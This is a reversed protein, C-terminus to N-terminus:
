FMDKIILASRGADTAELSLYGFVEDAKTHEDTGQINENIQIDYGEIYAYKLESPRYILGQNAYAGSEMAEHAVVRVTGRSTTYKDYVYGFESEKGDIRYHDTGWLSMRSKTLNSCLMIWDDGEPASDDLMDIVDTTFTKYTLAGGASYENQAWHYIGQMSGFSSTLASGGATVNNSSPRKGFVFTKEITRLAQYLKQKKYQAFIDNTFYHDNKMADWAIEVPERFEQVINYNNDHDKHIRSPSSSGSPYATALIMIEDNASASFTGGIATVVVDNTSISDVRAVANNSTNILTDYAKLDTADTVALTNTGATWTSATVTSGLPTFTFWEIRNRTAKRMGISPEGGMTGDNEKKRVLNLTHTKRNFLMRLESSVDRKESQTATDSTRPSINANRSVTAM